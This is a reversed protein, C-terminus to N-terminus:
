PRWALSVGVATQRSKFDGISRTDTDIKYTQRTVGLSVQAGALQYGIGMQFDGITQRRKLQALDGLDFSTSDMDWSVAQGKAGAFMFWAGDQPDDGSAEFRLLAGGSRVDGGPVAGLSVHPELTLSLTRPGKKVDGLKIPDVTAFAQPAFSVPEGIFRVGVPAPAFDAAHTISPAIMLAAILALVRVGKQRVICLPKM